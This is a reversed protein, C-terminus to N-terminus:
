HIVQRNVRSELSKSAIPEPVAVAITAEIEEIIITNRRFSHSPTAPLPPSQHQPLIGQIINMLYAYTFRQHMPKKSPRPQRRKHREVLKWIGLIILPITVILTVLAIIAETSFPLM